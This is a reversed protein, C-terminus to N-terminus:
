KKIWDGADAQIFDKTGNRGTLKLWLPGGESELRMEIQFFPCCASEQIAWESVLQFTKADSTFQFEYGNKLERVDKKLSRLMPGLEDFHRRREAPTLAEVNCAFPSNQKRIKASGTSQGASTAVCAVSGTFVILLIIRIIYNKM